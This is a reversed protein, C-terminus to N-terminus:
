FLIKVCHKWKLIYIEIYKRRKMQPNYVHMSFMTTVLNDISTLTYLRLCDTDFSVLKRRWKHKCLDWRYDSLTLLELAPVVCCQELTCGYVVTGRGNTGQGKVVRRTRSGFWTWDSYLWRCLATWSRRELYQRTNTTCTQTLKMKEREREKTECQCTHTCIDPGLVSVRGRASRPLPSAPLPPQLSAGSLVAKRLPLLLSAVFNIWFEQWVDVAPGSCDDWHRISRIPWATSRSSEELFTHLLCLWTCYRLGPM